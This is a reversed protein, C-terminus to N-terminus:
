SSLGLFGNFLGSPDRGRRIAGLKKWAEPSFCEQARGPAAEADIENIYRGTAWPALVKSGERLWAVNSPENVHGMWTAYIGMFTHDIRSCAADQPLRASSKFAVVVHSTRSPARTMLPALSEMAKEPDSTWITDVAFAGYGFGTMPNVSDILVQEMTSAQSESKFVAAAALESSKFPKLCEEAEQADAAFINVMVLAVPPGGSAGNALVMLVEVPGPRSALASRVWVCAQAAKHLPLVYLNKRVAGPRPQMQLKLKTVIGPFGQGAGRVAWLLDQNRQADATVLNGDATVIDAALISFCAMAGWQDHNLGVGGGILYGGLGVQGCHSVPFALGHPAGREILHFGWLAPQVVAVQEERNFTAGTLLSLDILLGEDRMFTAWVSHGGTRVGVKLGNRRAFRVAETVDTESEAQIILPPRRSPKRQQWVLGECWGPWASDGRAVVTGRVARRLARLGGSESAEAPSPIWPSVGSAAFAGATLGWRGLKEVFSRRDGAVIEGIELSVSPRDFSNEM